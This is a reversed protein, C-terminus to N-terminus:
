TLDKKKEQFEEKNIEGKAYRNKLIDLPSEISSDFASTKRSRNVKKMILWVILGIIIIWFLWGFWMGGWFMNHYM